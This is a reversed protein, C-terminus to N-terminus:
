TRKQAKEELRAIRSTLDEAANTETGALERARQLVAIAREPEGAADLAESLRHYVVLPQPNLSLSTEFAEIVESPPCGSERLAQGFTLWNLWSQSAEVHTRLARLETLKDGPKQRKCIRVAQPLFEVREISSILHRKPGDLHPLHHKGGARANAIDLFYENALVPSQGRLREADSKLLHFHLDEVIYQGGPSLTPFLREFTFIVHDSRHSGDDIIVLPPYAAAVRHLFEADDQSGIEILVRDQAYARCSQNIDIGIIQAKTFFRAWTRVSAGGLVGIEILNFSEDRLPALWQEYHRLYDGALSSKDTGEVIGIADLSLM